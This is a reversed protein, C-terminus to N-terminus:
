TRDDSAPAEGPTRTIKRKPGRRRPDEQVKRRYARERLALKAHPIALVGRVTSDFRQFASPGEICVPPQNNEM